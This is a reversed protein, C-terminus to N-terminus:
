LMMGDEGRRARPAHAYPELIRAVHRAVHCQFVGVSSQGNLARLKPATYDAGGDM